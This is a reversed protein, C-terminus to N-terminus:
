ETLYHCMLRETNALAHNENPNAEVKAFVKMVKAFTFM